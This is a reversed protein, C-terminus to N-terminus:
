WVEDFQESNLRYLKRISCRIGLDTQPSVSDLQTDLIDDNSNIKLSQSMELGPCFGKLEILYPRNRRTKVVLFQKDIQKWRSLQFGTIKSVEDPTENPFLVDIGEPSENATLSLCGLALPIYANFTKM